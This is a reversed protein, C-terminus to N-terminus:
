VIHYEITNRKENMAEGNHKTKAIKESDNKGNPRENTRKAALRLIKFCRILLLQQWNLKDGAQLINLICM